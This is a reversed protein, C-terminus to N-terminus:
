TAKWADVLRDLDVRDLLVKRLEGHNPLPIRVRTLTGAALLDRVTWGSVGLYAAATRLDLLRPALNLATAQCAQAGRSVDPTVGGEPLSMGAVHGNDAKRPRGRRRPFGPQDRLRDSASALPTM